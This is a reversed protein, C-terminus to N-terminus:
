AASRADCEVAIWRARIRRCSKTFFTSFPIRIRAGIMRFFASLPPAVSGSLDETAALEACNQHEVDALRVALRQRFDAAYLAIRAFMALPKRFEDGLLADREFVGAFDSRRAAHGFAALDRQRGALKRSLIRSM